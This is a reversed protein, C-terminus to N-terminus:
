LLWSRLPCACTLGSPRATRTLPRRGSSCTATWRRCRDGGPAATASRRFRRRRRPMPWATPKGPRSEHDAAAMRSMGLWDLGTSDARRPRLPVVRQGHAAATRVSTTRASSAGEPMATAGAERFRKMARRIAANRVAEPNHLAAGARLNSPAAAALEELWAHAEPFDCDAGFANMHEAATELLEFLGHAHRAVNRRVTEAWRSFEGEGVLGARRLGTAFRMADGLQLLLVEGQEPDRNWPPLRAHACLADAAALIGDGVDAALLTRHEGVTREYEALLAAAAPPLTEPSMNTAGRLQEGAVVLNVFWNGDPDPTRLLATLNEALLDLHREAGM